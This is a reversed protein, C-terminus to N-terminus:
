SILSLDKIEIGAEKPICLYNAGIGSYILYNRAKFWELMEKEDSKLHEVLMFPRFQDISKTAGNLARM